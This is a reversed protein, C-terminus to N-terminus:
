HKAESSDFVTSTSASFTLRFNFFSSICMQL